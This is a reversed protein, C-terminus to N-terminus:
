QGLPMTRTYRLEGRGVAVSMRLGRPLPMEVTASTSVAYQALYQAYAADIAEQKATWGEPPLWVSLSLARVDASVVVGPLTDLHAIADALLKLSAVPASASRTLTRGQLRYRVVQLRTMGDDAGAHRVLVLENPRLRLPAGNMEAPTALNLVDYQLQGFCRGFGRTEALSAIVGDRGRITADLGRWSLVAVVALLTIAVLMEILTFGATRAGARARAARREARRTM